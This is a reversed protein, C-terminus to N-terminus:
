SAPLSHRVRWNFKYPASLKFLMLWEWRKYYQLNHAYKFTSNFISRTAAIITYISWRGSFMVDNGWPQADSAYEYEYQVYYSAWSCRYCKSPPHPNCNFQFFSSFASVFVCLKLVLSKINTQNGIDKEASEDKTGCHKVRM